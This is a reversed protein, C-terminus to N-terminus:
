RRKKIPKKKRPPPLEEEDDDEDEEEDYDDDDDDEDYDDEDNDEDYEEIVKKSKKVSVAKKKPKIEEEEEEDEEDEVESATKLYEDVTMDDSVTNYAAFLQKFIESKSFKKVKKALPTVKGTPIVAYNTDTGDGIRQIVMDQSTIDGVTEYVAALSPIPTSRAAKYFFIEVQKTEYNYVNWAYHNQTRLGEENSDCNPCEVGKYKMCPHNFGQWKYHMVVDIGDEFDDLFRIRVKDGAKKVRFLGKFNGGSKAIDQKISDMISRKESM